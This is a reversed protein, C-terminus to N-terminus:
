KNLKIEPYPAGSVIGKPIIENIISIDESTLDVNLAGVNEEIYKIKKTGPIPVIDNGQKLLWALVLQSPKCQKNNAIEEIKIVIDLNKQFNEGQFRPFYRRVDDEALNDLHKIQGTLMGRGLPTYCVFGIELERCVPLIGEEVNRDWLSYASQVATVPHVSHARRIIDNTANSMGICRVKGERVLEAMAGITDEIPTSADTGHQYYLDIYEVGLRRLSAECASKVYEPRGCIGTLAGNEGRIGGFKTALIVKNRFNKVAKGILEENRGCGYTDATDFFNIGLDYAHHIVNVSEEDNSSGYFESMGMCGLGVASVKLESKGLKRYKM